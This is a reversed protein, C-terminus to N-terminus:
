EQCGKISGEKALTHILAKFIFFTHTHTYLIYFMESEVHIFYVLLGGSMYCM